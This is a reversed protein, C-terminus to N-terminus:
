LNMRARSAFVFIIGMSHEITNQKWLEGLNKLSLWQQIHFGPSASFCTSTQCRILNADWTYLETDRFRPSKFVSLPQLKLIVAMLICRNKNRSKRDIKRRFRFSLKCNASKSKFACSNKCNAIKPISLHPPPPNCTMAKSIIACHGQTRFNDFFGFGTQFSPRKPFLLIM